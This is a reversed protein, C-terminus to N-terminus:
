SCYKSLIAELGINIDILGIKSNQDLKRFEELISQLEDKQFYSAQTKYKSALFMQNPKLSLAEAINLNQEIAIKVLYLKKFHNYLTIVIKQVPEKKYILNKLTELASKINKKGLADTLSFIVAEIQKICLLDVEQKTIKGNEGAYEILKRAENILEQMGSGCEEIMYKLTSDDIEVKYARFIAKLRQTLQPLKQKEFECVIGEKEIIKYLANKEIEEEILVVTNYEKIENINEKFYNAVKEKLETLKVNKRKGEKKFLGSNKIIILKKDYGFSPTELDSILEEVNTEDIQIYNIGPIMEGFQKKIKKVISELLFIEEGYLLYISNQKEEKLEKELEQITM